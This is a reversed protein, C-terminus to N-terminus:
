KSIISDYTTNRSPTADSATVEVLEGREKKPYRYICTNKASCSKIIENSKIFSITDIDSDDTAKAKVWFGRWDRGTTLSLTPGATDPSPLIVVGSPSPITTPKASPSPITSPSPTPTPTSSPTPIPVSPNLTLIAKKSTLAFPTAGVDVLQSNAVSFTLPTQINPASNKSIFKLSLVNFTGNPASSITTPSVAMTVKIVGTSNVDALSSKSILETFAPNTLTVEEALSLMAKDFVLELQAFGLAKDTTMWLKIVSSQPLSIAEPEFFLEAKGSAAGVQFIQNQNIFINSIYLTLGVLVSLGAVM